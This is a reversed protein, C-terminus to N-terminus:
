RFDRSRVAHVGIPTFDHAVLNTVGDRYELTGSIILAPNRRAVSKHKEWVEPLVVVNLMGTEDELNFFIVGRATGPRQRHTVIGGVKMRAGNRRLGLLGMVTSCGVDGLQSRVFEIPHTSSVSTAWLDARHLEEASMKPLAPAAVGPALPLRGPGMEALAGAAWLAERRDVGLCSMAGAEALGEMAGVGLGTRQALDSVSTFEGGIQRAAEIRTIEAGALNRVYRLGM